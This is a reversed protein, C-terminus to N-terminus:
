LVVLLMLGAAAGICITVCWLLRAVAFYKAASAVAAVNTMDDQLVAGTTALCQTLYALGAALIITLLAIDKRWLIAAVAVLAIYALGFYITARFSEVTNM